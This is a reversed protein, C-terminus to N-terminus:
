DDVVDAYYGRQAPPLLRAIAVMTRQLNDRVAKPDDVSGEFLLPEGFRVTVLPKNRLRKFGGMIQESNIVVAPILVVKAAMAIRVAGSKGRQLQGERSRTGEPYMGLVKEQRLIDVSAAVADDDHKGREVPFMGISLMFRSLWPNVAFAESKTMYFIQRPMVNGMAVYDPGMSHNSALVFGDSVPVNEFGEVVIKCCLPRLLWSIIWLLKWILSADYPM